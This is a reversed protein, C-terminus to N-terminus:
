EVLKATWAKSEGLGIREADGVSMLRTTGDVLEVEYMPGSARTKIARLYAVNAPNLKSLTDGSYTLISVNLTVSDGVRRGVKLTAVLYGERVLQQMGNLFSTQHASCIRELVETGKRGMLSRALFFSTSDALTVDIGDEGSPGFSPSVRAIEFLSVTRTKRGDPRTVPSALRLMGEHIVVPRVGLASWIFVAAVGLL